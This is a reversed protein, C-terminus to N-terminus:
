MKGKLLALSRRHVMLNSAMKGRHRRPDRKVIRTHAISRRTCVRYDVSSGDHYLGRTWICNYRQCHVCSSEHVCTTVHMKEQTKLTLSYDTLKRESLKKEIVQVDTPM